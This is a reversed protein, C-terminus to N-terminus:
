DDGGPRDVDMGVSRTVAYYARQGLSVLIVALLGYYSLNRVTPWPASCTNLLPKAGISGIMPFSLSPMTLTGCSGDTLSPFTPVWGSPIPNPLDSFSPADDPVFAWILVCKVPVYVWKVPNFSVAESMCSGEDPPPVVPDCGAPCLPPPPEPVCNTLCINKFVDMWEPLDVVVRVETDTKPSGDTNTQTITHPKSDTRYSDRLPNCLEAEVVYTGWRCEVTSGPHDQKYTQWNTCIAVGIACPAGNIWVRIRCTGLFAGAPDFCDPYREKVDPPTVPVTGIPQEAGPWGGTFNVNGVPWSGNGFHASCSPVALQGPKGVQTETITQVTGTDPVWCDVSSTQSLVDDPVASGITVEPSVGRAPASSVSGFGRFYVLEGGGSSGCLDWTFPASGSAVRVPGGIAKRSNELANTVTTGVRCLASAVTGTGNYSSLNIYNQTWGAGTSCGSWQVAGQLQGAVATANVTVACGSAGGGFLNMAKGFLDEAVPVWTDKTEWAAWGIVAATAIALCIGSAACGAVVGAGGPGTQGVLIPAPPISYAKPMVAEATTPTFVTLCAALLGVVFLLAVPRGSANRWKRIRNM